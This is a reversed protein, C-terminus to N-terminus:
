YDCSSDYDGDNYIGRWAEAMIAFDRLEVRASGDIDGFLRHFKITHLGDYPRDDSDLLVTGDDATISNCDLGLEYSDDGLSSAFSLTALRTDSDYSFVFDNGDVVTNNTTGQLEIDNKTIAVDRSFQM